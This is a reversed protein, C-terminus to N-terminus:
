CYRLSRRVSSSAEAQNSLQDFLWSFKVTDMTPVLIKSFKGDEPPRYELPLKKDWSMWMKTNMYDYFCDFLSNSPARSSIKRIFDEFRKKSTDTLCTGISWMICFVFLNELIDSDIPNEDEPLLGDLLHLMQTIVNLNTRPIIFNLPAEIQEEENKGEYVLDMTPKVYRAYLDELNQVFAEWIRDYEFDSDKKKAINAAEEEKKKEWKRKWRYFYPEYGLDKPDVYVMGCRSITAPSLCVSSRYVEFLFSVSDRSDSVSM